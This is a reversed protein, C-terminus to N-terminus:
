GADTSSRDVVVSWGEHEFCARASTLLAPSTHFADTGLCIDPRDPSQDLEYPLASSAFSRADLVLCRGHAALAADVATTLRAHHPDYFRQFLSAREADSPPTRLPQQNATRTYIVGMGRASMPEQADDTFREPDLVLRSVPFRIAEGFPVDFLDDTHADTMHHLEHELKESNLLYSSHCDAARPVGGFAEPMAVHATIWDALTQSWSAMVFLLHSAGLAGGFIQADQTTGAVLNQVPMTQGAYNVFVKDGPVHVQRLVPELTEALAHYRASFWGTPENAICESWCHQLTMGPRQRETHVVAWDPEPRPVRAHPTPPYLRAELVAEDV